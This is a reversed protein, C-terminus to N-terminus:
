INMWELTQIYKNGGSGPVSLDSLRCSCGVQLSSHSARLAVPTGLFAEHPGATEAALLTLM